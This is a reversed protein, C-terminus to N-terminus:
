TGVALEVRSNKDDTTPDSCPLRTRLFALGFWIPPISPLVPGLQPDAYFSARASQRQEPKQLSSDRLLCHEWWCFSRIVFFSFLLGRIKAINHMCDKLLVRWKVNTLISPPSLLCVVPCRPLSAPKTISMVFNSYIQCDSAPVASCWYKKPFTKFLLMRLIAVLNSHCRHFSDLYELRSSGSSLM